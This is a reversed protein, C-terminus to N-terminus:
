IIKQNQTQHAWEYKRELSYADQEYYCPGPVHKKYPNIYSFDRKPGGGFSVLIKNNGKLELQSRNNKSKIKPKTKSINGSSFTTEGQITLQHTNAKLEERIDIIKKNRTGKHKPIPIETIIKEKRLNYSGPGPSLNSLKDDSILKRIKQLLESKTQGIKQNNNNDRINNESKTKNHKNMRVLDHTVNYSGPGVESTSGNGFIEKRPVKSMYVKPNISKSLSNYGKEYDYSGPGLGPNIKDLFLNNKPSLEIANYMSQYRFNIKKRIPVDDNNYYNHYYAPGPSALHDLNLLYDARAKEYPDKNVRINHKSYNKKRKIPPIEKQTRQSHCTPQFRVTQSNFGLNNNLTKDFYLLTFMNSPIAGLSHKSYANFKKNNKLHSFNPKQSAVSKAKTKPQSIPNFNITITSADKM